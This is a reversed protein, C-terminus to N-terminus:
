SHALGLSIVSLRSGPLGETIARLCDHLTAGTTIIDDVVLFHAPRSSRGHRTLAYTNEVNAARQRANRRTQTAHPTTLKILRRDVPIGTAASLGRALYDTQNYGRKLLRTWHSPVPIISDIGDFFGSGKIENAYVQGLYALISPRNRYKASLIPTTSAEGRSYFFMSAARDVLVHNDSLHHHIDNNKPILHYDTRPLATLCELCLHREGDTLVGGCIECAPPFLLAAIAEAWRTLCDAAM